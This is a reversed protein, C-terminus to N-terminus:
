RRRSTSTVAPTQAESPELLTAFSSFLEGALIRTGPPDHARRVRIPDNLAPDSPREMDLHFREVRRRGRHLLTIASGDVSEVLAVHTIGDDAKGNRNRDYTDHFFALDGPEPEAVERGAVLLARSRSRAPLLAVPIGAGRYAALVYGSCDLRAGRGLLHRASDLVLARLSAPGDGPGAAEATGAPPELAAAAGPPEGEVSRVPPEGTALASRQDAAPPLQRVAPLTRACGAGLAAALLLIRRSPARHASRM